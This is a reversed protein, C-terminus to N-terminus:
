FIYGFLYNLILKEWKMTEECNKQQKKLELSTGPINRM